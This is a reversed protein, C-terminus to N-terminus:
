GKAYKEEELKGYNTMDEITHMTHTSKVLQFRIM